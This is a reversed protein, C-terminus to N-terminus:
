TQHPPKNPLATFHLDYSAPPGCISLQTQIAVPKKRVRQKTAPVILEIRFQLGSKDTSETICLVAAQLAILVEVNVEALLWCTWGAGHSAVGTPVAGRIDPNLHFHEM